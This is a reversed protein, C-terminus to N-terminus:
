KTVLHAHHNAKRSVKCAEWSLFAQLSFNIDRIIPAIHCKSGELYWGTVLIKRKLISPFDRVHAVRLEKQM